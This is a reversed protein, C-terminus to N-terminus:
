VSCYSSLHDIITLVWKENLYTLYFVLEKENKDFVVIRRSKNELDHFYQITKEPITPIHDPIYKNREKCINSLIHDIQITDTFLGTKSWIEKECNWVPLKEYKLSLTQIGISNRFLVQPYNINSFGLKYVQKYQDYVGVRYLQYLGIKKDILKSITISDETSFARIVKNVTKVFTQEKETQGFTAITTTQFIILLRLFPIRAIKTINKFEM